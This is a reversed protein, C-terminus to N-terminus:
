NKKCDEKASKIHKLLLNKYGIEELIKEEKEELVLKIDDVSKSKRMEQIKKIEIDLERYFNTTIVAHIDFHYYKRYGNQDDQKPKVLGKEEYFKLADRSVGLFKAM